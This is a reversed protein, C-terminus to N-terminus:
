ASVVSKTLTARAVVADGVTAVASVFALRRTRRDVTGRAEVVDGPRAAVALTLSSMVTVAHEAEGLSPAVALFGSLELAAYLAAAHTGGFGNDALEAIRLACGAAPDAEDLLRLGLAASLPVALATRAREHLDVGV